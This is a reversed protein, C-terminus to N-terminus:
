KSRPFIPSAEDDLKSNKPIVLNNTIWDLGHAPPGNRSPPSEWCAHLTLHSIILLFTSVIHIHHQYQKM